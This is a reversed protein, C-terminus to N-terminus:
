RHHCVGPPGEGQMCVLEYNNEFPVVPELEPWHVGSRAAM